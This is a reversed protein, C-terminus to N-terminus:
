AVQCLLLCCALCIGNIENFLQFLDYMCVDVSIHTHTHTDAAHELTAKRNPTAFDAQQLHQGLWLAPLM